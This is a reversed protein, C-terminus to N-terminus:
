KTKGKRQRTMNSLVHEAKQDRAKPCELDVIKAKLWSSGWM